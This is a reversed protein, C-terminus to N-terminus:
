EAGKKLRRASPKKRTGKVRQFCLNLENLRQTARAKRRIETGYEFFAETTEPVPIDEDLLMFFTYCELEEGTEDNLNSEITFNIGVGTGDPTYSLMSSAEDLTLMNQLPVGAWEGAMLVRAYAKSMTSFIM